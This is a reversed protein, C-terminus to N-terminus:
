NVEYPIELSQEPPSAERECRLHLKLRGDGKAVVAFRLVRTGGGGLAAARGPVFQDSSPLLESCTSPQWRFGTMPNEPLEVVITDGPHFKVPSAPVRLDIKIEAVLNKRGHVLCFQLPAVPEATARSFPPSLQTQLGARVYALM